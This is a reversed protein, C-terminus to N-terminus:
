FGPKMAKPRITKWNSSGIKREESLYYFPKPFADLNGQAKQRKM